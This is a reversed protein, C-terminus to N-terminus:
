KHSTRKVQSMPIVELNETLPNGPTWGEGAITHTEPKKRIFRPRPVSLKVPEPLQWRRTHALLGFVLCSIISIGMGINPSSFLTTCLATEAAGVVAVTAYLSNGGLIAPVRNVMMDRLVGGGVATVVGLAIAPLWHLGIGLSKITGTAAWCGMGLFDVVVLVRNAWRSGLDICYALLASILAGAWYASDTLAVPLGTNLLVDRILGGGMGSLVALLIFGVVDFRFARAVAGGLLGNAVVAAVDVVRFLVSPDWVQMRM